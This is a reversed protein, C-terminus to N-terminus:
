PTDEIACPSPFKPEIVCPMPPATRRAHLRMPNRHWSTQQHVCVCVQMAIFLVAVMEINLSVPRRNMNLAAVVVFPMWSIFFVLVLVGGRKVISMSFKSARSEGATSFSSRVLHAIALYALATVVTSFGFIITM